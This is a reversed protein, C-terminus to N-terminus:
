PFFRLMIKVLWNVAVALHGFSFMKLLSIGGEESHDGLLYGFWRKVVFICTIQLMALLTDKVIGIWGETEAEPHKIHKLITGIVVAVIVVLSYPNSTALDHAIQQLPSM